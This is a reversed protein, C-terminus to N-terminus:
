KAHGSWGTLRSVWARAGHRQRTRARRILRLLKVTWSVPALAPAAFVAEQRLSLSPNPRSPARIRNPFTPQRCISGPSGRMCISCRM